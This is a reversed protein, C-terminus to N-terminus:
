GYKHGARWEGNYSDGGKMNLSGKGHKEGNKFEGIYTGLRILVNEKKNIV